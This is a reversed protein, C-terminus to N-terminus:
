LAQDFVVLGGSEQRREAGLAITLPSDEFSGFLWGVNNLDLGLRHLAEPLIDFAQRLNDPLFIALCRGLNCRWEPM